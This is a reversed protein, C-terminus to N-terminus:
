EEDENKIFIIITSMTANRKNIKNGCTVLSWDEVGKLIREFQVGRRWDKMDRKM